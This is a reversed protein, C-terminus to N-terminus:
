PQRNLNSPCSNGPMTSKEGPGLGLHQRIQDIDSSNVMWSGDQAVVAPVSLLNAQEMFAETLEILQKASECVVPTGGTPEMDAYADYSYQHCIARAAMELSDDGIIPHVVVKIGLNAEIATKKLNDLLDRSYPCDPDTVAYIFGKTQVPQFRMSVLDDLVDIYQKFFRRQAEAEQAKNDQLKAQQDKAIDQIGAMTKQTVSTGNKFLQGAFVFDNSAYVPVLSGELNLIVECFSAKEQKLVIETGGPLPIHRAITEITVTRCADGAMAMSVTGVIQWLFIYLLGTKM